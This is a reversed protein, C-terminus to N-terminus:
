GAAAWFLGMLRLFESARKWPTREGKANHSAYRALPGPGKGLRENSHVNCPALMAITLESGVDSVRLLRKGPDSESSRDGVDLRGRARCEVAAKSERRSRRRQPKAVCEATEPARRSSQM